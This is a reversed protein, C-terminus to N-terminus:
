KQPELKALLARIETPENDIDIVGANVARELLDRMEWCDAM